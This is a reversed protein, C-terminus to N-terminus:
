RPRGSGLRSISQVILLALLTVYRLYYSFINTLLAGSRHGFDTVQHLNGLSIIDFNHNETESKHKSHLKKEVYVSLVLVIVLYWTFSIHINTGPIQGLVIFELM